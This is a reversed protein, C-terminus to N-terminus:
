NGCNREWIMKLNGSDYVKLYGLSEMIEDETEGLEDYGAKTLKDKTTQYRKLVKNESPLVWVYNPQTITDVKFGLRSYSNGTFKSINSYTIVSRADTVEVMYKWMKELGGVIKVGPKFCVRILEYQYTLNFRPKGVVLVAVLESDTYEGIYEEGSAEGQLHYAHLFDKAENYTIRKVSTKRAYIIRSETGLVDQLLNTIKEKAQPNLWEHEFIHILRIGRKACEITKDQHYNKAKLSSSHWYTGNFEIAVRKDPIYLDLEKGGLVSRDGHIVPSTTISQILELLETEYSSEGNLINISEILNHKHVIVLTRSLTLGLKDSLQKATPRYGLQRIFELLNERTEIAAIQEQTRPQSTKNPAVEGYRKLMTEKARSAKKCGCSTTAGSLLDAKRIHALTHNECNCRCLYYGNGVYELVEWSEFQRKSIDQFENYGHGCSKSKGTVLDHASIERVKGCSCRCKWTNRTGKNLVSWEGFHRGTLNGYTQKSHGCSQSTGNLLNAKLVERETGCSCRCLYRKNGVYRLVEWEGITTGTLDINVQKTSCTVGVQRKINTGFLERVEGCINCTLSYKKNGLYRQVTFDGYIRGELKERKSM